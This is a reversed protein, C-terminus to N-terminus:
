TDNTGGYGYAGYGAEGYEDTPTATPTPTESADPTSTETPTETATPTETPTPTPTETPTPTPTPTETPTPTPTPTPTETPTPTPTPTPTETPTPTPTPTPDTDDLATGAYIAGVHDASLADGYLLVDDIAGAMDYRTSWRNHGRAIFLDTRSHVAAGSQSSDRAVEEGDLYLILADTDWVAFLHHWEGDHTGHGFSNVSATGSETQVHARVGNQTQVEISYGLGGNLSEAKQLITQNTDGSSTRYWGGVSLEPGPRLSPADPVRVYHGDTPRFDVCGSGRIGSVGLAPNGNVTGDNDGIADAVVSGVDEDLTWRAVPSLTGGAEAGSIALATGTSLTFAEGGYGYRVNRGGSGDGVAGQGSCGALGTLVSAGATAKLYERRTLGALELETLRKRNM